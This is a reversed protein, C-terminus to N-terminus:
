TTRYRSPHLVRGMVPSATGSQRFEQRLFPRISPATAILSWRGSSAADFFEHRGQAQTYDPNVIKLWSTTRGDSHYIGRAWKAVIGLARFGDHKLEFLWDSRDFAEPARVPPM